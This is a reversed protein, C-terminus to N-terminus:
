RYDPLFGNAGIASYRESLSFDRPYDALKPEATLNVDVIRNVLPKYVRWDALVSYQLTSIWGPATGSNDRSNQTSSRSAELLTVGDGEFADRRFILTENLILEALDSVTAPDNAKIDLSFSVNDKSGFVQYTECVAPSVIVACQDGPIVSDGIAIRMGDVLNTNVAMKKATVKRQGVRVRAEYRCWGGPPLPANLTVTGDPHATFPVNDGEQTSIFTQSTVLEEGPLVRFKLTNESNMIQTSDMPDAKITGVVSLTQGTPTWKSLTITAGNVTYDIGKRLEFDDQDVIKFARYKGPITAMQTGGVTSPILIDSTEKEIWYDDPYTLLGYGGNGYGILGFQAMATVSDANSTLYAFNEGAVIDLPADEGNTLSLGSTLVGPAFQIRSGKSVPILGQYWKYDEVTFTVTRDVESVSDVNFLHVGAIPTALTPDIEEGWEFFSGDKDKIKAIIARGLQTCIFNNPSLRVGQSTIDRVVCQVDHYSVQNNATLSVEGLSKRFRPNRAVIDRIVRIMYAALHNGTLNYAV